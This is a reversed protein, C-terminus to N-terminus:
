LIHDDRFVVKTRHVDLCFIPWHAVYQLEGTVGTARAEKM